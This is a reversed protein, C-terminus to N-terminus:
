LEGNLKKINMEWREIIPQLKGDRDKLIEPKTSFLDFKIIYFSIRVMEQPLEELTVDKKTKLKILLSAQGTSKKEFYRGAAEKVITDLVDRSTLSNLDLVEANSDYLTKDKSVISIIMHVM